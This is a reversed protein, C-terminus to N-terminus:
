IDRIYMQMYNRCERFRHNKLMRVISRKSKLSYVSLATDILCGSCLSYNYIERIRDIAETLEHELTDCAIQWILWDCIGSHMAKKAILIRHKTNKVATQMYPDDRYMDVFKESRSIFSGVVYRFWDIGSPWNEVDYAHVDKFKEKLM